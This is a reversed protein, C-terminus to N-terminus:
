FYLTLLFFSSFFDTVRNEESKVEMRREGTKTLFILILVLWRTSFFLRQILLRERKILARRVEEDLTGEDRERERRRRRRRM